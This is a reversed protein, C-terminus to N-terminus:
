RPIAVLRYNKWDTKLVVNGWLIQGAYAGTVFWHQPNTDRQPLPAEVAQRLRPLIDIDLSRTEENRFATDFLALRDNVGFPNKIWFPVIRDAPARCSNQAIDTRCYDSLSLQYFMTQNPKTFTNTLIIAVVAGGKSVKCDNKTAKGFRVQLDAMVRLSSLTSLDGMAARAGDVAAGPGALLRSSIFLDSEKPLGANNLCPLVAGNQHLSVTVNRGSKLIGVSAEAAKADFYIGQVSQRQVFPSLQGGFISWQSIFWNPSSGTATYTRPGGPPPPDQPERIAFDCFPPLLDVPAANVAVPVSMIGLALWIGLSEPKMVGLRAM